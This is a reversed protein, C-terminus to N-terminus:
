KSQVEAKADSFRKMIDDTNLEQKGRIAWNTIDNTTGGLAAKLLLMNMGDNFLTERVDSGIEMEVNASGDANEKVFTVIFSDSPIDKVGLAIDIAEKNEAYYADYDSKLSYYSIVRLLSLLLSKEEEDLEKGDDIHNKVSSKIAEATVIEVAREVDM